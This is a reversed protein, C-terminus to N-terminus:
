EEVYALGELENIYVEHNPLNNLDYEKILKVGYYDVGYIPKDRYFREKTDLINKNNGYYIELKNTDYNICYAWKCNMSDYGFAFDNYLKVPEDTNILWGLINVGINEHLYKHYYCLAKEKKAHLAKTFQNHEEDTLFSIDKLKNKLHELYNKCFRLITEGDGRPEGYHGGYQAVKIENNYQVLTLYKM